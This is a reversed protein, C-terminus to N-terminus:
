LNNCTNWHLKPTENNRDTEEQAREAEVATRHLSSSASSPETSPLSLTGGHDNGNSSEKAQDKYLIMYEEFTMRLKSSQYRTCDIKGFLEDDIKGAYSSKRILSIVATKQDWNQEKAVEPLYTASYERATSQSWFKIIIGHTGVVWDTVSQCPEYQVLLSVAVRLQSIEQARVPHFRRDRFASTLAYEGIATALPKPSLSGICGRLEYVTQQQGPGGFLGPFGGGKTRKKDWTIFLPCEVALNPLDEVFGPTPAKSSCFPRWGSGKPSGQLDKILVDFCHYCM